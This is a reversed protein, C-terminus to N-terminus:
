EETLYRYLEDVRERSSRTRERGRQEFLGFHDALAKLGSIFAQEDRVTTATRTTGAQLFGLTRGEIAVDEVIHLALLGVQMLCARAAGYRDAVRLRRRLYQEPDPDSVPAPTGAVLQRFHSAPPAPANVRGVELLLEFARSGWRRTIDAEIDQTLKGWVTRHLTVYIDAAQLLERGDRVQGSSDTSRFLGKEYAIGPPYGLNPNHARVKDAVVIAQEEKSRAAPPRRVIALHREAAEPGFLVRLRQATLYPNHESEANAQSIRGTPTRRGTKRFRGRRGM